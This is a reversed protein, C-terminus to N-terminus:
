KALRVLVLPFCSRPELFNLADGTRLLPCEMFFTRIAIMLGFFIHDKLIVGFAPAWSILSRGVVAKLTIRRSPHEPIFGYGFVESFFKCM